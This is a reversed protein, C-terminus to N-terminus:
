AQKVYEKIAKFVMREVTTEISQKSQISMRALLMRTTFNLKLTDWGLPEGREDVFEIEDPVLLARQMVRQDTM